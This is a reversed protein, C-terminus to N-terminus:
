SNTLQPEQNQNIIIKRKQAEFEPKLAERFQPYLNYLALLDKISVTDNIRQLIDDVSVDVGENCWEAILAGTNASITFEPKGTFLMTRDKSTTVNHKIDVEFVLTFEYDLGEKTVGKLGIKEPIVKGNKENLVYDQKSRITGIIHCPSQLMAQIFANHRPTLKSWNTFSNGAMRSHTDLIGGPGEWVQSLSDIIVVEMGESECLNIAEIYKEPTFPARIGVTNYAGLHAYLDASNNETDVVAIKSWDNCLGYALLLSSYTKGAGSPAQLAMKIKARKRSAVQLKMLNLSKFNLFYFLSLVMPTM